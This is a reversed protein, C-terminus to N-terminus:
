CMFLDNWKAAIAEQSFRRSNEVVAEALSLRQDPNVMLHKLKKKYGTNDGKPVSCYCIEPSIIESLSAFSNFVIPVCGFQSAEVLTMPWGEYKSTMMFLAADRYFKEPKQRGCFHVRKLHKAAFREYLNRDPGDGVIDLHWDDLSRDAEISKWIKLAILIRKQSECLRAVIVVRTKKREIARREAYVDFSVPNPIAKMEALNLSKRYSCAARIWPVIYCEALLVNYQAQTISEFYEKRVQRLNIHRYIPYICIKILDQIRRSDKFDRFIKAISVSKKSGLMPTNHFAFLIRCDRGSLEVGKALIASVAHQEQNIIVDIENTDIISAVAEATYRPLHFSKEFVTKDPVDPMERTFM